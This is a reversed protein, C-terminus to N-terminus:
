RKSWPTLHDQTSTALPLQQPNSLLLHSIPALPVRSSEIFRQKSYTIASQSESQIHVNSWKSRENMDKYEIWM